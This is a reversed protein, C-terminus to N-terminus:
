KKEVEYTLPKDYRQNMAWKKLKTKELWERGIDTFYKKSTPDFAWDSPNIKAQNQWRRQAQMEADCNVELDTVVHQFQWRRIFSPNFSCRELRAACTSYSYKELRELFYGVSMKEGNREKHCLWDDELYFITKCKNPIYPLCDMIARSPGEPKERTIVQVPWKDKYSNALEITKIFPDRGLHAIHDIHCLWHVPFNLIDSNQHLSDITQKLLDPRNIATTIVCIM